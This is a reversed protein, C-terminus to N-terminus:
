SPEFNSKYLRAERNAPPNKPRELETAARFYNRGPAVGRLQAFRIYINRSSCQLERAVDQPKVGDRFRKTILELEAATFHRGKNRICPWDDKTAM